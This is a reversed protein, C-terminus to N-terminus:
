HGEPDALVVNDAFSQYAAGVDKALSDPYVHFEGSKFAALLADAVLTPPEAIDRLGAQDIMDTAIPGPHVSHVQTGHAGLQVRLGQTLAYAAAKSACYTAFDPFTLYSAVSNLQVFAGGGNSKLIPAFAQAMRLLGYVNVDMEFELAEFAGEDLASNATLVGANNVVIDVDTAVKAADTISSVDSVDLHIPVVKDGHTDVLPQAAELKRVAAYVKGAGAAIFSDVFVKGIGRNAGTVLVTKNSIDIAM